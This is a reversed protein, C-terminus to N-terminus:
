GNFDKKIENFDPLHKDTARKKDIQWLCGIKCCIIKDGDKFIPYGDIPCNDFQRRDCLELEADLYDGLSCGSIGNAIRYEYIEFARAEIKERILKDIM